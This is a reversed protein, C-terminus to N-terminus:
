AILKLNMDDLALRRSRRSIVYLEKAVNRLLDRNHTVLLVAGQFERLAKALADISYIDLHNTPEDLLLLQPHEMGIKTFLVRMRQGGSLTNLPQFVLDGPVGFSGLQKRLDLEKMKPHMESLWELPSAKLRGLVDADHQSLLSIKLRPHKWVEGATAELDGTILRILTSKGVGNRGQVAVRDGLSISLEVARLTPESCGPYTFSAARLQLVSAGQAIRLGDDSAFGFKLSPDERQLLPAAKLGGEHDAVSGVRHGHESSKFRKGDETKEMGLRELKQQQSSVLSSTGKSETDHLVAKKNNARNKAKNKQASAVQQEKHQITQLITEKKREISAAEREMHLSKEMASKEFM